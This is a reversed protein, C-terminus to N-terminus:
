ALRTAIHSMMGVGSFAVAEDWYTLTSSDFRQRLFIAVLMSIGSGIMSQMQLLAGVLAPGHTLLISLMVAFTGLAVVKRACRRLMQQSAADFRSLLDM